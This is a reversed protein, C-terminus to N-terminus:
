YGTKSVIFIFNDFLFLIPADHHVLDIEFREDESRFLAEEFQYTLCFLFYLNAVSEYNFFISVQNKRM